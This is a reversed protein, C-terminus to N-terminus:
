KRVMWPYRRSKWHRLHAYMIVHMNNTYNHSVKYTIPCQSVITLLKTIMLGNILTQKPMLSTM